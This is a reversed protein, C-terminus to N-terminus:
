DLTSTYPWAINGVQLCDSRQAKCEAVLEANNQVESELEQSLASTQANASDLHLQLHQQCSLSTELGAEARRVRAKLNASTQVLLILVHGPLKSISVVIVM